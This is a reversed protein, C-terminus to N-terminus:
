KAKFLRRFFARIGKEKPPAGRRWLTDTDIKRGTELYDLFARDFRQADIYGEEVLDFYEYLVECNRALECEYPLAGALKGMTALVEDRSMQGSKYNEWLFRHLREHVTNEEFPKELCYLHLRYEVEKIDGRCDLLELVIDSLPEEQELYGNLWVDYGDWFGCLLLLREFYADERTM